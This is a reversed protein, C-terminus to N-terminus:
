LLRAASLLLAVHQLRALLDTAASLIVPVDDSAM